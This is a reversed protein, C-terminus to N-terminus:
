GENLDPVPTFGYRACFQELGITDLETQMEPLWGPSGEAPPPDAWSAVPRGTTREEVVLESPGAPSPFGGTGISLVVRVVARMRDVVGGGRASRLVLRYNSM